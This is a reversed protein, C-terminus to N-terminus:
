QQYLRYAGRPAHTRAADPLRHGRPWPLADAPSPHPRGPDVAEALRNEPAFSARGSPALTEYSASLGPHHVISSRQLDNAQATAITSGRYRHPIAAFPNSGVVNFGRPVVGDEASERIM